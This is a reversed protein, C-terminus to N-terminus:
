GCASNEVLRTLSSYLLSRIEFPLCIEGVKRCIGLPQLELLLGQIQPASCPSEWCQTVECCSPFAPDPSEKCKLHTSSCEPLCLWGLPAKPEFLSLAPHPTWVRSPLQAQEWHGWLEASCQLLLTLGRTGLGPVQKHNFSRQFEGGKSTVHGHQVPCWHGLKASM